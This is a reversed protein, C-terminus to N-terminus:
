PRHRVTAGLLGAPPVPDDQIDIIERSKDVPQAINARGKAVVKFCTRAALLDLDQIGVAIRDLEM